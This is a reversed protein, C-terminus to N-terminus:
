KTSPIKLVSTNAPAAAPKPALNPYKAILDEARMGAESGLAGNPNLRNVEEFLPLAQDAKNQAVYLRALSFKAQPVTLDGPHREILSKYAALAENTKNQSELCAAVGLLAEGLFPSDRHDRTFKDFQTQAESYKGETFLTGAALLLARTGASSNPDENAIKLYAAPDVPRGTAAPAIMVNAVAESEKVAKEETQNIYIWILLGAGVVIGAGWGVQRKHADFWAWAKFVAAMETTKQEM